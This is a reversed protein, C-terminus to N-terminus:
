HSAAQKARSFVNVLHHTRPQQPISEKKRSVSLNRFLYYAALGAGAVLLSSILTKNKM